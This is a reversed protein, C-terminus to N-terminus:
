TRAVSRPPALALVLGGVLMVLGAVLWPWPSGETTCTSAAVSGTCVDGPGDRNLWALWLPLWGAGALAAWARRDTGSRLGLLLALGVAPVSLLLWPTFATGLGLALVAGSLAWALLVLPSRPQSGTVRRPALATRAM